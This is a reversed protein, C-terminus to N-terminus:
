DGKRIKESFEIADEVGQIYIRVMAKQINENSGKGDTSCGEEELVKYVLNNVEMAHISHKQGERTIVDTMVVRKNKSM